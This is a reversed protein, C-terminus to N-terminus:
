SLRALRYLLLGGMAQLGLAGFVMMRGTADTWMHSFYDGNTTVIAGGLLLPLLGLIWASLRTESSMAVLEQEAEEHDRMFHAVRELLLDSRGGYRVGLGLISAVLYLEEIRAKRAIQLLAQDIEMGAKILGLTNDMHHRLPYKTGAVATQFAAQTSHGMVILRVIVDLFGPLQRVIDRRMRQVRLWIFFAGAVLMLVFLGLASVPGSLVATTGVAVVIAAAGSVLAAPPLAGLLWGPLRLKTKRTPVPAPPSITAPAVFRLGSHALPTALVPEAKEDIKDAVHRQAFRRQQRRVSGDWLLVGGAGLLLALALAIAAAESM